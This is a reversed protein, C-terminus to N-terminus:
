VFQMVEDNLRWSKIDVTSDDTVSVILYSFFPLANKLDYDSPYASHMPHSHYIGLLDIKRELAYQEAKIFDLPSIEYRRRQDGKKSNQVPLVWDIIKNMEMRGFLFGCCENPFSDIACQIVMNVIEKQM